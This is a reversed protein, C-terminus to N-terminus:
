RPVSGALVLGLFDETLSGAFIETDSAVACHGAHLFASNVRLALSHRKQPSFNGSFM